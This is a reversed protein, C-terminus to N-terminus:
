CKADADREGCAYTVWPKPIGLVELRCSTFSGFAYDNAAEDDHRTTLLWLEPLAARRSKRHM